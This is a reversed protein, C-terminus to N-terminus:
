IYFPLDYYSMDVLATLLILHALTQMTRLVSPLLHELTNETKILILFFYKVRM